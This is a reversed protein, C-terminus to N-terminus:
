ISSHQYQYSKKNDKEDLDEIDFNLKINLGKFIKELTDFSPNSNERSLADYIGARSMGIKKAFKTIGSWKIVDLLSALFLRKDHTENYEKLTERLYLKILDKKGYFFKKDFEEQTMLIKKVKKAM